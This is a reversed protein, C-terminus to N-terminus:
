RGKTNERSCSRRSTRAVGPCGRSRPIVSPETGVDYSMGMPVIVSQTFTITSGRPVPAAHFMERRSYRCRVRRSRISLGRHLSAATHGGTVRQISGKPISTGFINQDLGGDRPCTDGSVSGDAALHRCHYVDAPVSGAFEPTGTDDEDPNEAERLDDHGPEAGRTGALRDV